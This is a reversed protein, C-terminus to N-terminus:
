PKGCACERLDAEAWVVESYTMRALMCQLAVPGTPLGMVERAHQRQRRNMWMVWFGCAWEIDSRDTSLLVQSLTRGDDLKMDGLTM